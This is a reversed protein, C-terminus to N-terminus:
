KSSGVSAVEGEFTANLSVGATHPGFVGQARVIGTANEFRGTGGTIIEEQVYDVPSTAYGSVTTFVMDGNATTLTDWAIYTPNTPDVQAYSCFAIRAEYAGLLTSTGGGIGTLPLSGTPCDTRSLDFWGYGSFVGKVPVMKVEHNALSVDPSANLLSAEESVGTLTDQACGGLMLLAWLAFLNFYKM